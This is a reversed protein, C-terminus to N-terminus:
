SWFSYFEQLFIHASCEGIYIVTLDEIVWMRFFHLYFCFYLYSRILSLLNKVVFSAILLTFLYGECHSFIIVFSFFIPLSNIGVCALLEHKCSVLYIFFLKIGFLHFIWDFLPYFVQYVNRWLLCLPLLYFCSFNSM